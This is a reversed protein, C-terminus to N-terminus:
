HGNETQRGVAVDPFMKLYFDRWYELVAPPEPFRGQDDTEVIWQELTSRMERLAQQHTPHSSAALNHIEYPDTETDYLEEDPLRPAVLALPPGFLRGEAHLTRLIPVAPFRAEKYRHPALFPLEPMFNRIYRYRPGRVSRIRQVAEDMRDRSSFVVERAPDANAGLFIRSQMGAPKPVGALALTTATLDLLSVLQESTRGARYQPPEPFNKPWRVILPVRDGSDYCWHLGRLELRGNDAFFIVITDDALGDTDLRALIEGVRADLGHISDLYGAWHRRILPHDPYYPPVEVKAPDTVAPHTQGQWPNATSGTWGNPGLEVTPLNIQAYFPRHAPLQTWETAEFLRVSNAFNQRVIEAGGWGGTPSTERPRLVEGEVEFNLDTKGTGIAKGGMTVINATFYGAEHLRQPLPRVGKPLHYHDDIGPTRHSRHNHTGITTSYMGTMFSSRSVSCVPSTDFALRYRLGERALRDVNPTVVGTHGYCGFDPGINEAIIWLINPRRVPEAANAFTPLGVAFFIAALPPLLRSLLHNM